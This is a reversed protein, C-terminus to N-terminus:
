LVNIGEVAFEFQVYPQALDCFVGKISICLPPFPLRLKRRGLFSKFFLEIVFFSRKLYVLQEM